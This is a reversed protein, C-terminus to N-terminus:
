LPAGDDQECASTAAKEIAHAAATAAENEPTVEAATVVPPPRPLFPNESEDVRNCPAQLDDWLIADICGAGKVECFSLRKPYWYLYRVADEIGMHFFERQPSIRYHALWDHAQREVVQFNEVEIYCLVNFPDPVATGKSLEAAREHPSRETCGVKYVDPMYDNVLIYVFGIQSM